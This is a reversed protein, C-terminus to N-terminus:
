LIVRLMLGIELGSLDVNGDNASGSHSKIQVGATFQESFAREFAAGIGFLTAKGDYYESSEDFGNASVMKYDLLISALGINQLNYGLDSFFRFESGNNNEEFEVLEGDVLHEDPSRLLVRIGGHLRFKQYIVNSGLSFEAIAGMKYVDIDDQTAVGYSNYRIYSYVNGYQHDLAGNVAIVFRNGPDYSDIDEVPSYSANLLYGIGGGFSLNSIKEAYAAEIYLGFGEGYRKAPLSLFDASLLNGVITEDQDLKTKGTPLNLGAGLLVKDEYLSHLVSLRTDNMGALSVDSGASDTSSGATATSFHIETNEYVPIFAYVPLYWQSLDFKEGSIDDDVTWSQYIFQASGQMPDGYVVQADSPTSSSLVLVFAALTILILRKM